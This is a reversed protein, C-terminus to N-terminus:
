PEVPMFDIPTGGGGGGGGGGSPRKIECLYLPGRDDDDGTLPGGQAELCFSNCQQVDTFTPGEAVPCFWIDTASATASIAMVAIGSVIALSLKM